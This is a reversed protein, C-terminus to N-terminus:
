QQKKFLLSQKNFKINTQMMSAIKSARRKAEDANKGEFLEDVTNYFLSLWENFQTDSMETSNSLGIHVRMPNGSYSKEGILLSSWFNYMKPLHKGWDIGAVDSFIFGIVENTMVKAYFTDVLLKIDKRNIIDRAM